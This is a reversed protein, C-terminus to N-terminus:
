YLTSAAAVAVGNGGRTRMFFRKHMHARVSSGTHRWPRAGAVDTASWTLSGAVGGRRKGVSQSAVM